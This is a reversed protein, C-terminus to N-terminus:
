PQIVKLAELLEPSRDKYRPSNRSDGPPGPVLRAFKPDTDKGTLVDYLRRYIRDKSWEPMADFAPDYIMYSSRTGSCGLRLISTACPAGRGTARVEKRSPKSFTSVGKVPESSFAENAFLMYTLM